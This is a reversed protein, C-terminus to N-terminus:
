NRSLTVIECHGCIEVDAHVMEHVLAVILQPMSTIGVNFVIGLVVGHVGYM